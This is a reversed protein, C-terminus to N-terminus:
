KLELEGAGGGGQAQRSLSVHHEDFLKKDRVSWEPLCAQSKGLRIRGKSRPSALPGVWHWPHLKQLVSQLFACRM